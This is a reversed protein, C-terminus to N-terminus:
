RSWTSFSWSGYSNIDGNIGIHTWHTYYHRNKKLKKMTKEEENEFLKRAWAERTSKGLDNSYAIESLVNKQSDPINAGNIVNTLEDISGSKNIDYILDKIANIPVKKRYIYEAVLEGLTIISIIVLVLLIIIVPITLSQSIVDLLGSLVDFINFM